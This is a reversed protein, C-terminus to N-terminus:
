LLARDAAGADSSAMVSRCAARAGAGTAQAAQVTLKAPAQDLRLHVGLPDAVGPLGPPPHRLVLGGM